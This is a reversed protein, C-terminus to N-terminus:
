PVHSSTGDSHLLDLLHERLVVANNNKEDRAGYLLTLGKQERRMRDVLADAASQAEPRRRLEELYRLRFEDYRLPDHGFWSRLAPTPAAEPVWADLTVASKRVGRPWLRDVLIRIGDGPDAALYIRKVAIFLDNM